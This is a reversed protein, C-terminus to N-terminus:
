VFSHDELPEHLDTLCKVENMALVDNVSIYLRTIDEESCVVCDLDTVETNRFLEATCKILCM